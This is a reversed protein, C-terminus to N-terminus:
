NRILRQSVHECIKILMKGVEDVTSECTVNNAYPVTLAGYLEGLTTAIQQTTLANASSGLIEMIQLGKTLAPASYTSKAPREDSGSAPFNMNSM